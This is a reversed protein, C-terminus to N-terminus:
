EAFLEPNAAKIEAVVADLEAKVEPDMPIIADAADFLEALTMEEVKLM